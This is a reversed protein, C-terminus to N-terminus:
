NFGLDPGLNDSLDLVNDNQCNNNSIDIHKKETEKFLIM